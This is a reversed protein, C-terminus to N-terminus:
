NLLYNCYTSKGSNSAGVIIFNDCISLKKLSENWSLDTRFINSEHVATNVNPFDGLVVDSKLM